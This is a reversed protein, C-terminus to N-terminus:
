TKGCGGKEKRCAYGPHAGPRRGPQAAEPQRRAERWMSGCRLVGKGLLYGQAGGPEAQPGPGASHGGHERWTKEDLIEKWEPRDRKGVPEGHHDRYGAVRGSTLIQRLTKTNWAAGTVTPM